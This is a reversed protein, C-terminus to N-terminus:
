YCEHVLKSTVVDWSCKNQINDSLLDGMKQLFRNDVSRLDNLKEFIAQNDNDVVFSDVGNELYEPLAGVNTCLVTKHFDAATFVVGSMSAHRYPLLIVVSCIIKLLGM